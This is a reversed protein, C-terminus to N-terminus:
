RITGDFNPLEPDNSPEPTALGLDQSNPHPANETGHGSPRGDPSGLPLEAGEDVADFAPALDAQTQAYYFEKPPSYGKRIAEVIFAEKRKAKRHPLYDLQRQIEEETYQTLLDIVGDRSVGLRYLQVALETKRDM